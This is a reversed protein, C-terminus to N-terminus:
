KLDVAVLTMLPANAADLLTLDDGRVRWSKVQALAGLFASEQPMGEACAMRTAAVQGLGLFEGHLTYTGTLRNCGGSGVVRNGAIQLILHPERQGATVVAATGKLEVLKWYTNVLTRDPKPDTGAGVAPAVPAAVRQLQLEVSAGAGRTLVPTFRTTTYLLRGDLTIRARVSYSHNAQVAADEYPVEFRIPVQGAPTLVLRGIVRAPADALSVDEVTVELTADPPLASRDDYTATGTITSAASASAPVMLAIGVALLTRAFM